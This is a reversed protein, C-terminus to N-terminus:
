LEEGDNSVVVFLGPWVQHCPHPASPCRHSMFRQSPILTPRACLLLVVLARLCVRTTPQTQRPAGCMCISSIRVIGVM